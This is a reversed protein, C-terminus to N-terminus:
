PLSDDFHDVPRGAGNGMGRGLPDIGLMVLLRTSAQPPNAAIEARLRKHEEGLKRRLADKEPSEAMKRIDVPPPPRDSAAVYAANIIEMERKVFEKRREAPAMAEMRDREAFQAKVREKQEVIRKAALSADECAERIEPLKPFWKLKGPLGSIPDVVKAVVDEPYRSFVSVVM